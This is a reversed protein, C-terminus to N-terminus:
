TSGAFKHLMTEGNPLIMMSLDILDNKSIKSIIDKIETIKNFLNWLYYSFSFEIIGM